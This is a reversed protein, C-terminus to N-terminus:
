AAWRLQCLTETRKRAKAGPLRLAIVSGRVEVSFEGHVLRLHTGGDVNDTLEVTVISTVSRWGSDADGPETQRWRLTKGPDVALVQCEIFDPRQGGADGRPSGESHPGGADDRPCGEGRLDGADGSPEAEARRDFRFRAGVEPCLDNPALWAALLERETLARWVLAPAQPVDFEFVLPEAASVPHKM